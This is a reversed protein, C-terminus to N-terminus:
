LWGEDRYWQATRRLGEALPVSAQFGLSRRASETDCLWGEALLERAKDSDFISARGRLRGVTESARAAWVIAPAPVRVVRARSGVARAVLRGVDVWPYATGEAIHHTGVAATSTAASEVANALDQVHVLQLLRDPGTPVPLIGRAALRFFHYLDRDRPGYVAPARLIVVEIEGAARLCLVEGALKSRGYATLPRPTDAPAVPRGDQSPGVAAMSSLYVLRRPRPEAGLMAELLHHTGLVNTRHYAEESPARTLAALHVVVDTGEMARRLSVPDELSGPALEVGPALLGDTTRRVLARVAHGQRVLREVTHRGVFGTAGTILIRRGGGAPLLSDAVKAFPLAPGSQPAAGQSQGTIAAVDGAKL